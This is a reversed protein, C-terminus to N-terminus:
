HTMQMSLCRLLNKAIGRYHLGSQIATTDIDVVDENSLEKEYTAGSRKVPMLSRTPHLNSSRAM